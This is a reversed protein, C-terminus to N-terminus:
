RAKIERTTLSSQTSTRQSHILAPLAHAFTASCIEDGFFFFFCCCLGISCPPEGDGDGDFFCSHLQLSRCARAVACPTPTVTSTQLLAPPARRPQPNPSPHASARERRTVFQDIRIQSRAHFLIRSLVRAHRRVAATVLTNAPVHAYTLHVPSLLTASRLAPRSGRRSRFAALCSVRCTVYVVHYV